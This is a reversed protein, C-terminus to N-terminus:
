MHTTLLYIESLMAVFLADIPHTYTRITCDRCSSSLQCSRPLATPDNSIPTPRAFSRASRPRPRNPPPIPRALRHVNTDTHELIPLIPVDASFFAVSVASVTLSLCSVLATQPTSAAAPTHTTRPPHPSPLPLLSALAVASPPALVPAVAPHPCSYVSRNPWVTQKTEVCFLLERWIPPVKQLWYFPM